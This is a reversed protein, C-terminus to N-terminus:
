TKHQCHRRWNKIVQELEREGPYSRWDGREGIGMLRALVPKLRATEIERMQADSTAVYAASQGDTEVYLYPRSDIIRPLMGLQPAKLRLYKRSLLSHVDVATPLSCLHAHLPFRQAPDMRACGGGRGQEYFIPATAGYVEAYFRRVQAQLAILEDFATDPLKSLAGACTYPAIVLFGEIMQGRPACIYLREGRWLVQEDSLHGNHLCYVCDLSVSEKANSM